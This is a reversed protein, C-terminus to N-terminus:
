CNYCFIMCNKTNMVLRDSHIIGQKKFVASKSLEIAMTLEYVHFHVVRMIGIRNGGERQCIEIIAGVNTALTVDGEEQSGPLRWLSM